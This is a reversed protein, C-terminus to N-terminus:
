EAVETALPPPEVPKARPPPSTLGPLLVSQLEACTIFVFVSFYVWFLVAVFAGYTGFFATFKGVHLIYYQFLFKGVHWFVAAILGSTLLVKRSQKVPSLFMYLLYFMIVTFLMEIGSFAYVFATQSIFQPLVHSIRTRMIISFIFSFFLLAQIISFVVTLLLDEGKARIFGKPQTRFIIRFVPRLVGFLRMTFFFLFLLGLPGSLRKTASILNVEKIMKTVVITNYPEPLITDFFQELHLGANSIDIVYGLIYISLLAFPVFSLLVYFSVSSVIIPGDDAQYKKFLAKSITFFHHLNRRINDTTFQRIPRVWCNM